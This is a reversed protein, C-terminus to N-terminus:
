NNGILASKIILTLTDVILYSAVVANAVLIYEYVFLGKGSYLRLMIPSIICGSVIGLLLLRIALHINGRFDSFLYNLPIFLAVTALSVVIICWLSNRNYRNKTIRQRRM